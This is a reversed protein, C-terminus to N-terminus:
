ALTAYTMEMYKKNEKGSVNDIGMYGTFPDYAFNPTTLILDGSRTKLDYTDSSGTMHFVMDNGYYCLRKDSSIIEKGSADILYYKDGDWATAYGDHIFNIKKYKGSAIVVNGDIDKVGMTKSNDDMYPLWKPSFSSRNFDSVDNWSLDKSYNVLTEGQKNIYDIKRGNIALAIGNSFYSCYDFRKNSLSKSEVLFIGRKSNKDVFVAAGDMIPGVGIVDPMEIKESLNGTKDILYVESYNNKTVLTTENTFPLVSNFGKAIPNKIDSVNFLAYETEGNPVVFFLGNFIMTPLNEFEASVVVSGDINKIGYRGNESFVLHSVQPYVNQGIEEGSNCSSLILLGMALIFLVKKM